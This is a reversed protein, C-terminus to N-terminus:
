SFEPSELLSSLDSFVTAPLTELKNYSLYLWELSSLGSFDNSKLDTIGQYSLDLEKLSRLDQDIVESCSAKGVARVIADQVQQTRDCIGAFIFFANFLFIVFISRFMFVGKNNHTASQHLDRNNNNM